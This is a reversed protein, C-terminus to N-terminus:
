SPLGSDVWHTKGEPSVDKKWIQVSKKLEDILFRTAEFSPGRHSTATGVVVSAEGVSVTGVRHLMVIRLLPWQKSARDAISQMEKLAMTNHAEYWLEKTLVGETELRTTGAFVCVGGGQSAYLFEHVKESPLTEELIAIWSLPSAM